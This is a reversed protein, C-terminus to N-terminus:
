NTPQQSPSGYLKEKLRDFDAPNLYQFVEKGRKRLNLIIDLGMEPYLFHSVEEDIKVIETPKGFRLEIMEADLRISTPTYSLSKIVKNTLTKEVEHSLKLQYSGSPMVERKLAVKELEKLEAETMDLEVIVNSIIGSLDIKEFMAELSLSTDQDRFLSIQPHRKVHSYFDGLTSKGLTHSFVTSSGDDNITVMWPLDTLKEATLQKKATQQFMLIMLLCFVIFSIFLIKKM